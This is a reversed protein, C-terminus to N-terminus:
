YKSTEIWQVLGLRVDEQTIEKNEDLKFVNEYIYGVVEDHNNAKRTGLSRWVESLAISIQSKIIARKEEIRRNKEEQSYYKDLFEGIARFIAEKRTECNVVDVYAEERFDTTDYRFTAYFLNMVYKGNDDSFPFALLFYNLDREIKELVPMLWDYSKHFQLDNTGNGMYQPFPIGLKRIDAASYFGLSDPTLGMFKAIKDNNEKVLINNM